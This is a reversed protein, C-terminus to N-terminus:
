KTTDYYNNLLNLLYQWKDYDKLESETKDNKVKLTEEFIGAYKNELYKITQIIFNKEDEKSILWQAYYSHELDWLETQTGDGSIFAINGPIRPLLYKENTDKNIFKGNNIRIILNSISVNLYRALESLSYSEKFGKTVFEKYEWDTLNTVSMILNRDYNFRYMRKAIRIGELKGVLWNSYKLEKSQSYEIERKIQLVRGLPVGTKKSITECDLVDVLKGAIDEIIKNKSEDEM